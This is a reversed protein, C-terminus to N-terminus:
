EPVPLLRAAARVVAGRYTPWDSRGTALFEDVAVHLSAFLLVAVLEAEHQSIPFAADARMSQVFLSTIPNRLWSSGRDRAIVTTHFLADHLQAHERYYDMAAGLMAGIRERGPPVDRGAADMASAVNASYREQLAEVLEDKSGFYLYFTGKAAGAAETVDDISAGAIGRALLVREAASLLEARRAQPRKVPLVLRAPYKVDFHGLTM